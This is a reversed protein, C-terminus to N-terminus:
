FLFNEMLKGESVGKILFSFFMMLLLLMRLL